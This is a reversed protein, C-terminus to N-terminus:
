GYRSLRKYVKANYCSRKCRNVLKCVQLGIIFLQHILLNGPSLISMYTYFNAKESQKIYVDFFIIFRDLNGPITTTMTLRVKNVRLTLEIPFEIKSTM